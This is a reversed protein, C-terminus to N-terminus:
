FDAVLQFVILLIRNQLLEYFIIKDSRNEVHVDSCTQFPLASRAIVTLVDCMMIDADRNM